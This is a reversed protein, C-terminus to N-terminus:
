HMHVLLHFARDALEGNSDDHRRCGQVCCAGNREARELYFSLKLKGEPSAIDLSDDVASARSTTWTGCHDFGSDDAVRWIAMLTDLTAAQSLKLGFRLPHM